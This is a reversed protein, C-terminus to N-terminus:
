SGPSSKDSSNFSKAYDGAYDQKGRAYKPGVEQQVPHDTLKPFM